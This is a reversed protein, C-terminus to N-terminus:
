FNIAKFLFFLRWIRFFFVKSFKSNFISDGGPSGAFASRPIHFCTDVCVQICINVSNNVVALLHFRDLRVVFYPGDM